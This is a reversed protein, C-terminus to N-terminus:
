GTSDTTSVAGYECCVDELAAHELLELNKGQRKYLRLEGTGAAGCLIEFQEGSNVPSTYTKVFMGNTESYVDLDLLFKRYELSVTWHLTNDTAICSFHPNKKIRPLSFSCSQANEPSAFFVAFSGTYM